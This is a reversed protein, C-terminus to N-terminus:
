RPIEPLSVYQSAGARVGELFINLHEESGCTATWVGRGPIEVVVNYLCHSPDLEIEHKTVTIIPAENSERKLRRRLEEAAAGMTPQCGGGYSRSLSGFGGGAAGIWSAASTLIEIVQDDSHKSLDPM